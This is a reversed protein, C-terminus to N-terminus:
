DLEKGRFFQDTGPLRDGQLDGDSIRLGLLGDIAKFINLHHQKREVSSELESQEGLAHSVTNILHLPGKRLLKSEPQQNLNGTSSEGELVRLQMLYPHM